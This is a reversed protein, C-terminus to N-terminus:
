KAPEWRCISGFPTSSAVKRFGDAVTGSPSNDGAACAKFGGGMDAGPMPTSSTVQKVSVPGAAAPAALAAGATEAPAERRGQPMLQEISATVKEGDWEFVFGAPSAEVIKYEGIKEGIKYSRQPSGPGEAMVLSLGAGFDMAGFFSPLPPRQKPPPTDIVVNPNRDKSFLLRAAVEFFDAPSVLGPAAPIPVEAPPLPPLRLRLLRQERQRAVEWNTRLRWAGLGTLALLLLNL